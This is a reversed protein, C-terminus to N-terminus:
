SKDKIINSTINTCQKVSVLKNQRFSPSYEFRLKDKLLFNNFFMWNNLGVFLDNYTRIKVNHWYIIYM